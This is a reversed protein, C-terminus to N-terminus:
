KDFDVNFEFDLLSAGLKANIFIMEDQDLDEILNQTSKPDFWLEVMSEYYMVPPKVYYVVPTFQKQYVVKCKAANGCLLNVPGLDPDEAILRIDFTMTQYKDFYNMPQNFLIDISPLKYTISGLLPHSAFSDDESLGPAPIEMEFEHSYMIVTNSQPNEAIGVGKIFINTGGAFSVWSCGTPVESAFRTGKAVQLEQERYGVGDLYFADTLSSAQVINFCSAAMLIAYV